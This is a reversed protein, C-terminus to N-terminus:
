LFHRNQSIIDGAGPKIELFPHLSSCLHFGVNSCCLGRHLWQRCILCAMLIFVQFSFYIHMHSYICMAVSNMSVELVGLVIHTNRAVTFTSATKSCFSRCFSRCFACPGHVLVSYNMGHQEWACFSIVYYNYCVWVEGSVCRKGIKTNLNKM